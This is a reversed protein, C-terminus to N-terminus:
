GEMREKPSTLNPLFQDPMRDYFIHCAKRKLDESYDDM